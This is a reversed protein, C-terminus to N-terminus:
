ESDERLIPGKKPECYHVEEEENMYKQGYKSERLKEEKLLASLKHRKEKGLKDEVQAVM